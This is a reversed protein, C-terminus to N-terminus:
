TRKRTNFKDYERHKLFRKASSTIKLLTVCGGRNQNPIHSAPPPNAHSHSARTSRNATPKAALRRETSRFSPSHFDRLDSGLYERDSRNTILLTANARIRKSHITM